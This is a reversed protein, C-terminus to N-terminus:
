EGHAVWDSRGSGSFGVLVMLVVLGGELPSSGVSGGHLVFVYMCEPVHVEVSWHHM